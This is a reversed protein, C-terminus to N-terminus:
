VFIQVPAKKMKEIGIMESRSDRKMLIGLPQAEFTLRSKTYPMLIVEYDAKANRTKM